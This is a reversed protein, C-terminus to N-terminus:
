RKTPRPAYGRTTPRWPVGTSIDEAAARSAIDDSSFQVLRRQADSIEALTSYLVHIKAQEDHTLAVVSAATMSKWIVASWAPVVLGLLNSGAYRGNDKSRHISRHPKSSQVLDRVPSAAAAAGQPAVVCSNAVAHPDQRSGGRYDRVTSDTLFLVVNMGKVASSDEPASAGALRAKFAPLAFPRLIRAPWARREAGVQERIM